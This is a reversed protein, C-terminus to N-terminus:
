SFSQLSVYKKPSIRAIKSRLIELQFIPRLFTKPSAFVYSFRRVQDEADCLRREMRAKEQSLEERRESFEASLHDVEQRLQAQVAAEIKLEAEALQDRAVKAETFRSTHFLGSYNSWQDCLLSFFVFLSLSRSCSLSLSLSLSLALFLLSSSCSRIFSIRRTGQAKNAILQRDHEELSERLQKNEALKEELHGLYEILSTPDTCFSSLPSFVTDVNSIARFSFSLFCM